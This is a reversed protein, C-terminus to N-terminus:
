QFMTFNGQQFTERRSGGKRAALSVVDGSKGARRGFARLMEEQSKPELGAGPAIGASSAAGRLRTSHPNGDPIADRTLNSGTPQLGTNAEQTLTQMRGRLHM